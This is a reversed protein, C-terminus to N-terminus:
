CLCVGDQRSPGLVGPGLRVELCAELTALCMNADASNAETAADYMWTDYLGLGGGAHGGAQQRVAAGLQQPEGLGVVAGPKGVAQYQQLTAFAHQRVAVLSAVLSGYAITVTRTSALLRDLEPGSVSPGDAGDSDDVGSGASGGGAAAAAAAVPGAQM